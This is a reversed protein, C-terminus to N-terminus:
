NGLLDLIKKASALTKTAASQKEEYRVDMSFKVPEDSSEREVVISGAFHDFEITIKTKDPM